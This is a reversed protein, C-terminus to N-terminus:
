ARRILEAVLEAVDTVQAPDVSEIVDENTHSYAPVGDSSLGTVTIARVSARMAPTADTDGHDHKARGLHIHLDAAISSVLREIRRDTRRNAFLGESMYTTLDGAGISDLNVLFAGRIRPRNEALFSRMGAHDLESSGLAVFWIDHAALAEDGMSLVAHRLEEPGVQQPVQLPAQQPVQLPVQQPAQQQQDEYSLLQAYQSGPERLGARRAAGGKWHTSSGDDEFNDWSGIARGDRKADFDDSIGLWSSMSQNDSRGQGGQQRANRPRVSTAGYSQQSPASQHNERPRIDSATSGMDEAFPDYSAASPDPLDYLAVRRGFSNRGKPQYESKGWSPDDVNAPRPREEIIQPSSGDPDIAVEADLGATDRMAMEEETPEPENEFTIGPVLSSAPDVSADSEPEPMPTSEVETRTRKDTNEAEAAPALTAEPAPPEVYSVHEEYEMAEPVYDFPDDQGAFDLVVEDEVFKEDVAPVKADTPHSEQTRSEDVVAFDIVEADDYESVPEFVGTSEVKDGRHALKARVQAFRERIRAFFAGISLKFRAFFGPKEALDDLKALEDYSGDGFADGNDALDYDVQAESAQPRISRSVLQPDIYVIECSTPLVRLDSLIDKGHRVGEVKEYRETVVQPLPEPKSPDVPMAKPAEVPEAAVSTAPRLFDPLPMENAPAASVPKDYTEVTPEDEKAEDAQDSPTAETSPEVFDEEYPAARDVDDYAEIAPLEEDPAPPAPEEVPVSETAAPEDIAPEAAVPEDIAPEDYPEEMSSAEQAAPAAVPMDEFQEDVFEPEPENTPAAVSERAPAINDLARGYGDASDPMPRVMGLVGLMAAVGSKNDNAGDTCGSFRTYIGEIGLLLLPLSSVIALVWIVRRAASPIFGLGQLLGLVCAVIVLIPMLRKILNQYRALPTSYLFSERATDYHAVIVIPRNGQAVRPGAARHFGIVNQSRARPGISGLVDSGLFYLVFLVLCIATVIIGVISAPTGQLGALFVGLCLLLMMIRHPLEGSAPADFEQLHVDLGHEDMIQEIAEAALLEEQSNAPAIEIKDNLYGLYDRTTAM